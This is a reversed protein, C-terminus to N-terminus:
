AEELDLELQAVTNELVEIREEYVAETTV